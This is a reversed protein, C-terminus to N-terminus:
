SGLLTTKKLWSVEPPSVGNQDSYNSPNLIKNDFFVFQQQHTGQKPNMYRQLLQLFLNLLYNMVWMDYQTLAM